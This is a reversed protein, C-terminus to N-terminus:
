RMASDILEAYRIADAWYGMHDEICWWASLVAQALGWGLLRTRDFGLEEALVDARRAIAQALQPQALLRPSLNRLLAGVEYAPEGVV